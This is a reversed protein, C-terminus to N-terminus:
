VEHTNPNFAGEVRHGKYIKHIDLWEATMTPMPNEEQHATPPLSQPATAAPASTPQPEATLRNVLMRIVEGVPEDLLRSTVLLREYTQEDLNVEPMPPEQTM